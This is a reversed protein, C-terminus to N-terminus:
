TMEKVFALAKRGDRVRDEWTIGLAVLVASVLSIVVVRPAANAYPGINFLVVLLAAGAGLLFPAQRGLRLGVALVGTAGLGLLLARLGTPEALAQPLSPLLALALGPGLAVWSSMDPRRRLLVIGGALAGAAPPLTFAEVFSFGSDVILLVYSIAFAAITPWVFWRRDAAVMAVAALGTGVIAWSVAAVAVTSACCAAVGLAAAAGIELTPRVESPARVTAFLAIAALAVAVLVVVASSGNGADIGRAAGATLLPVAALGTSQRVFRDGDLLAIAGCGAAVTVWAVAMVWPVATASAVAEVAAAAAVLHIWRGGPRRAVVTTTGALLVLLLVLLWWPSSAAAAVGAVAVSGVSALAAPRMAGLGAPVSWRSILWVTLVAAVACAASVWVDLDRAMSAVADSAESGGPEDLARVCIEAIAAGWWVLLGLLVAAPITAAWRVGNVWTGSGYTGFAAGAVALGAAALLAGEAQAAEAAPIAVLLGLGTLAVATMLTRASPIAVGVGVAALSVVVLPLGHLDNVLDSLAPHDLAEGVALGLCAVYFAGVVIRTGIAILRSRSFRLALGLVGAVVLGVFGHWFARADGIAAAGAAAAAVGGTAAVAPTILDVNVHARAWQVVVAGTAAMAAGGIAWVWAGSAADLNFLGESWAGATDLALLALGVAWLAEASARLPRRTVWIAIVIVAATAGALVLSKGILGISEWSRSVFIIAATVLGIAGLALLVTGVSWSRERPEGAPTSAAETPPATTPLAPSAGTPFTPLGPSAPPVPATPPAAVARAALFPDPPPGPTATTDRRAVADALLKDARLLTQWLERVPPDNLDLGCSPCQPGNIPGQCDPCRHPDAFRM